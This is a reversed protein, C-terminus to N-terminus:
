KGQAAPPHLTMHMEVVGPGTKLAFGLKRALDQMRQNENLTEGHLVGIGRKRACDILSEMLIRGLGGGKVDSAVLIAFEAMANDPDAVMRAEGLSREVGDADREIAVLAIERDYDIQTFRALQSRPLKRM